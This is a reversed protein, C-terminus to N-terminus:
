PRDEEDYGRAWRLYAEAGGLAAIEDKMLGSLKGTMRHAWEEPSEVTPKSQKDNPSLGAVGSFLEPKALRYRVVVTTSMKSPPGDIGEIELGNERLFRKRRMASCVQPTNAVPFGNAVLDRMLDKVSVSVRVKGAQVAPKLYKQVVLARVRDSGGTTM